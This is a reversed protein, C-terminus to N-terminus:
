QFPPAWASLQYNASPGLLYPSGYVGIIFNQPGEQRQPLDMKTIKLMHYQDNTDVDEFGHERITPVHQQSMFLWINGRSHNSTEKLYIVLDTPTYPLSFNYYKFAGNVISGSVINNSTIQAVASLLSCKLLIEFFNYRNFLNRWGM